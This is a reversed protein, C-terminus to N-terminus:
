FHHDVNSAEFARLILEFRKERHCVKFECSDIWDGARHAVDQELADYM